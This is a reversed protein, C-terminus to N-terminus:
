AEAPIPTPITERVTESRMIELATLIFAIWVADALFLHVLQMVIPAHLFLTAAGSALQVLILASVYKSWRSLATKEPKLRGLWGSLFLIFVGGIISIIPHSIRLRVLMPSTDAFDSAIGESVSGSPYFMNSLAALSGSSGIFLIVAAGLILMLVVGKNAPVKLKKTGDSLWATATLVALLLFTNILHGITWYPRTPTWNGATNGTLVLGRGILAEVVIFVLSLFAAKRLASGKESVRIAWVVLALVVLGAIATSVRHSYEIVTKLQPASPVVEGNCTLWHQGCGDGSHSARLFVGWIIVVVNYALTIWAFKSFGSLKRSLEM